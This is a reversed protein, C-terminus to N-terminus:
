QKETLENCVLYNSIVQAALRHGNENWHRDHPHYNQVGRRLDEVFRPALDVYPIGQSQAFEVFGATHPPLECCDPYPIVTLLLRAHHKSCADRLAIVLKCTLPDTSPATAPRSATPESEQALQRYHFRAARYKLFNLLHSRAFLTNYGPIWKVIRQMRRPGTFPADHKVLRDGLLSYLGCIQNDGFDNAQCFCLIVFDPGYKYGETKFFALQHATGTSGVGGNLVEWTAEHPSRTNLIRELVKPFTDNAEVGYGCTYSDGLCLIRRVGAAKAYPFERDRLGKSNIILDVDYDRCTVFGRAGPIQRTGMERDWTNVTVALSRRPQFVRLGVELGVLALIVSSLMLLGVAFVARLRM